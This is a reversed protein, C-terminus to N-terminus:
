NFRKAYDRGGFGITQREGELRGDERLIDCLGHCPCTQKIGGSHHNVLVRGEPGVPHGEGTTALGTVANAADAIRHMVHRLFLHDHQRM